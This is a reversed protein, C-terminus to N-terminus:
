SIFLLISSISVTGVSASNQFYLNKLAQSEQSGCKPWNFVTEITCALWKSGVTQVSAVSCAAGLRTEAPGMRHAVESWLRPCIHVSIGFNDWAAAPRWLEQHFESGASSFTLPCHSTGVDMYIYRCIYRRNQISCWQYHGARKAREGIICM